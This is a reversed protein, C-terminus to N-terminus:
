DLWTVRRQRGREELWDLFMAMGVEGESQCLAAMKTEEPDTSWGDVFETRTGGPPEVYWRSRAQTVRFPTARNLRDKTTVTRYGGSNLVVTGDPRFRVIATTYLAIIVEKDDMKLSTNPGINARKRGRLISLAYDWGLIPGVKLKAGM